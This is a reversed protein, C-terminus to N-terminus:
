RKPKFVQPINNKVPKVTKLYNYIAKLEDDTMQKFNSWPMPSGPIVKGMRFRNIFNQQSWGSIRSGGDPTINPPTYTGTPLEIPSGGAFLEGTFAGSLDRKTHCGNCDAVNLALYKGYLASTDRTVTKPVEAIPGVPKIMFAKVLNGIINLKNEPVKNNVPKLSRLYSIIATIDEDSANHFPMFDYVATGNAHVGYRLIRAIQSDTLNGIGTEKDPTINKSYIDGVPLSFKVAGSLPIDLGLNLLSDTNVTSHCNACHAPGLVLHRGLAIVTSDASARIAPYPADYKLNQRFPTIIAILIILVLLFWGIGKLIKKIM